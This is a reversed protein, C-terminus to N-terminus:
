KSINRETGTWRGKGSAIKFGSKKNQKVDNCNKRTKNSGVKWLSKGRKKNGIKSDESKGQQKKKNAGNDDYWASIDEM